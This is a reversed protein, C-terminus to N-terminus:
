QRVYAVVAGVTALLFVLAIVAIMARGIWDM